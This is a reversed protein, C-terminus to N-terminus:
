KAVRNHSEWASGRIELSLHSFLDWKACVPERCSPSQTLSLAPLTSLSVPPRGGLSGAQVRVNKSGKMWMLDSVLESANFLLGKSSSIAVWELVRAQSIGHVSSGPPSCDLPNCLTPGSQACMYKLPVTNGFSLMHFCFFLFFFPSGKLSLSSVWAVIHPESGPRPHVQLGLSVAWIARPHRRGLPHHPERRSRCECQAGGRPLSFSPPARGTPECLM